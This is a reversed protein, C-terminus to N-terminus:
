EAIVEDIRCYGRNSTMIVTAKKGTWNDQKDSVELQYVDPSGGAVRCWSQKLKHHTDEDCNGLFTVKTVPAHIADGKITLEQDSGDKSEETSQDVLQAATSALAKCSAPIDQTAFAPSAFLCGTIILKTSHKM